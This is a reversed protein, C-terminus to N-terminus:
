YINWKRLKYLIVQPGYNNAFTQYGQNLTRVYPRYMAHIKPTFGEKIKLDQIVIWLLIIAFTVSLIGILIKFYVKLM